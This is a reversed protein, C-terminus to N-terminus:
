KGPRFDHGWDSLCHAEDVIFRSILKKNYLNRIISRIQNSNTLKEPTIYLLKVGGHPGTNRLRQNIEIQETSYDQSSALFVAEVGLKNLSHVQDQILSLLPSIVVALGPCCWAPLQYCLSKGGGTPMLVFVDRGQIARQIIERQGSRFSQHGFIRRNEASMDKIEGLTQAVASGGEVTPNWSGQIGDVWQFFDCKQDDPLACKYFERGMNASSRATLKLCPVGHGPCVVADSGADNGDHFYTDAASQFQNTQLTPSNTSSSPPVGASATPPMVCFQDDNNIISSGPEDALDYIDVELTHSSRASEQLCGSSSSPASAVFTKTNAYSISRPLFTPSTQSQQRSSVIQDVDVNALLADFEDDDAPAEEQQLLQAARQREEREVSAAGFVKAAYAPSNQANPLFQGYVANHRNRIRKPPSLYDPQPPAAATPLSTSAINNPTADNDLVVDRNSHDFPQNTANSAVQVAPASPPPAPLSQQRHYHQAQALAREQIGQLSMPLNNRM